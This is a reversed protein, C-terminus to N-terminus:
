RYLPNPNPNPNPYPNPNPNPNSNPNCNPIFPQDFILIIGKPIFQFIYYRTLNPTNTRPIYGLVGLM